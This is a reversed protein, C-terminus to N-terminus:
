NIKCLNNVGAIRLDLHVPYLSVAFLLHARRLVSASPPDNAGQEVDWLLAPKERWQCAPGFHLELLM